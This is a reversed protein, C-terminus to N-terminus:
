PYEHIVREYILNLNMTTTVELVLMWKISANDISFVPPVSNPRPFQHLIEERSNEKSVPISDSVYLTETFIRANKGKNDIVEEIIEYYMNAERIYKWNNTSRITSAFIENNKKQIDINFRGLINELFVVRLLYAFAISTIIACIIFYIWLNLVGLIIFCPVLFFLLFFAGSLVSLANSKLYGLGETIDYNESKSYIISGSYTYNTGDIIFSKISELLSKNLRKFSEEELQISFEIEYSIHINEGKYTTIDSKQEINFPFDYTENKSLNMPEISLDFTDILRNKHRIKGKVQQSLEGQIREISINESPTIQLVGARIADNKKAEELELRISFLDNMVKSDIM